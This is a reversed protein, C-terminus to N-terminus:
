KHKNRGRLEIKELRNMVEKPNKVKLEYADLFIKYAKEWIKEHKSELAQRFLHIDVAKDEIKDSFKSLGFDILIVKKGKLIMNSTTLDGHVIDNNHLIAVKEGIERVLDEPDNDLVDRIKPGDIFEMEIISTKDTKVLKPADFGLQELKELVKSERRTRFKRLKEDIEPIRYSKKIRDKVINKEKYIIAEAGSSIQEM